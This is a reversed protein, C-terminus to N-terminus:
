SISLLKAIGELQKIEKAKFELDENIMKRTSRM